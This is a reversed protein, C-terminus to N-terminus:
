LNEINILTEVAQMLSRIDLPKDLCRYAGLGQARAVIEPTFAGSMFIVPLVMELERRLAALVELGDDSRIHVDLISFHVPHFTVVEIAEAESGAEIAQYGASELTQAVARRVGRDDDVVLGTLPRPMAVM